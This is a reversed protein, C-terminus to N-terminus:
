ARARRCIFALGLISLGLLSITSATDPVNVSVLGFDSGVGGTTFTISSVQASGFPNVLEWVAGKGSSAPSLNKVLVSPDSWTASTMGTATLTFWAPAGATTISILATELPDNYEPGDFLLGIVLKTIMGPNDLTLTLSEGLDIENGAKGGTVGLVTYGARSKLGLDGGTASFSMGAPASTGMTSADYSLAQAASSALLGAALAAMLSIRNLAMTTTIQQIKITALRLGIVFLLLCAM